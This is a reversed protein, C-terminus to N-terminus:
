ERVPDPFDRYLGFRVDRVASYVARHLEETRGGRRAVEQFVRELQALDLTEISLHFEGLEAPALGLKRRRLRYGEILGESQLHGLYAAVHECFELDQSSDRLNFWIEYADV